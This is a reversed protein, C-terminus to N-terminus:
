AVHDGCGLFGNAFERTKALLDFLDVPLDDLQNDLARAETVVRSRDLAYGSQGQEIRYALGPHHLGGGRLRTLRADWILLHALDKAQEDGDGSM